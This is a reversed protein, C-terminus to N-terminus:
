GNTVEALEMLADAHENLIEMTREEFTKLRNQITVKVTDEVKRASIGEPIVETFAKDDLTVSKMNDVTLNNKITDVEKFNSTTMTILTITSEDDVNFKTGDTFVLVKMM